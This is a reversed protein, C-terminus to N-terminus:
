HGVMYRWGQQRHLHREAIRVPPGCIRPRYLHDEEFEDGTSRTSNPTHFVINDRHYCPVTYRDMGPRMPM